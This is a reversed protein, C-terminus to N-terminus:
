ENARGGSTLGGVTITKEMKLASGINYHYIMKQEALFLSLVSTAGAFFNHIDIFGQCAVKRGALHHRWRTWTLLRRGHGGCTAM